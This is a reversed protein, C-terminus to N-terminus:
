ILVLSIKLTNDMSLIAQTEKLIVITQNFQNHLKIHNIILKLATLNPNTIQPPTITTTQTTTTTRIIRLLMQFHQLHIILPPIHDQHGNMKQLIKMNILVQRLNNIHTIQHSLITAQLQQNITRLAQDQDLAQLKIAKIHVKIVITLLILILNTKLNDIVEAEM